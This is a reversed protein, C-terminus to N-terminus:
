NLKLLGATFRERDGGDINLYPDPLRGKGGPQKFSTLFMQHVRPTGGVWESSKGTFQQVRRIEEYSVLADDFKGASVCDLYSRYTKPIIAATNGALGAAGLLLGNM